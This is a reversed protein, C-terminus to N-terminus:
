FFNRSDQNAARAQNILAVFYETELENLGLYNALKLGQEISLNSDGKFIHTVMTTHVNLIKAIKLFQGHGGKPMSKIKQNVFTKYEAFEFIKM